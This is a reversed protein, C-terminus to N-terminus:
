ETSNTEPRTLVSAFRLGRSDVVDSIPRDLDSGYLSLALELHERMLERAAAPQGDEIAQVIREHYPEGERHVNPDSHSRLMLAHVQNRIAGFMLMLVPNGSAAVV